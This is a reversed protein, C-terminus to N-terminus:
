FMYGLDLRINGSKWNISDRHWGSWYDLWAVSGDLYWNECFVYNTGLKFSVGYGSKTREYEDYYAFGTNSERERRVRLFHFGFEGYLNWCDQACYVFDLGIWPGWWSTRYSSTTGLGETSLGLEAQEEITLGDTILQSDDVRLFQRDYNFGITPIFTVDSCWCNDLPVGLAIDFDWVHSRRTVDNHVTVSTFGGIETVGGGDFTTSALGTYFKDNERIRGDLVWGYDFSTRFYIPCDCGYIAKIKGGIFIIDLDRFDLNSKGLPSVVDPTKIKWDIDDVRYGLGFQLSTTDAYAFASVAVASTALLKTLKSVLTKM